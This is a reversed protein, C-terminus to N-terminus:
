AEGAERIEVEEGDPGRLYAIRGAGAVPPTFPEPHSPHLGIGHRAAHALFTDLDDVTFALHVPGPIYDSWEGLTEGARVSFLEIQVAGAVLWAMERRKFPRRVRLECGLVDVYFRLSEDFRATQVAVHHLGVVRPRSFASDCSTDSM